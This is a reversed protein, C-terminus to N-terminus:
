PANAPRVVVENIMVNAPSTLANLIVGAVDQACLAGDAFANLTKLRHEADPIGDALETAVAGPYIVTVAVRGAMEQRLAESVIKVGAKTASYVGSAPSTKFAAVSSINVIHGSGQRLMSPLVANIGYLVGKLNVDIMRDWDRIRGESLKSVPMVGANNILADIRGFRELALDALAQVQDARAVDTVQWVAPGALSGALVELRDGRRAALVLNAGEKALLTATAVGIGSSAGTVM